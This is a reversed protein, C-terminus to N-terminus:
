VGIGDTVGRIADEPTQAPFVVNDYVVGAVAAGILPGVWYVAQNKFSGGVMGSGFSYAPNMSGGTFPGSALVNAGAIFGIMLPGITGFAGRRPDGTAYFTYVLAFTMAGELIAAGFGTMEDPIGHVPVNETITMLKLLLCAFVSGLMQSIWYFMALPISIHGGVAMGFTVAPNLHGGSVNVAVYVAASLAFATAIATALLGCPDVVMPAEPIMKRSSMTSGTAAFVFFFTSLFEALYSRFAAPTIAHQFRDRLTLSAM